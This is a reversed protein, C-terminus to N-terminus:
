EQEVIPILEALHTIEYDVHDIGNHPKKKPNFWCTDFGCLNGGRIDSTLSDGIILTEEPRLEPVKAYVADFFEKQPKEYGIVESVFVEQIYQAIGSREMRPKQVREVGNTVIYIRAKSSLKELVELVGDVYHIPESLADLYIENFRVGDYDIGVKQFFEVFRTEFIEKKSMLGENLLMWKEHNLQAYTELYGEEAKLGCREFARYFAEQETKQFDLLTDDFDFLLYNYKM